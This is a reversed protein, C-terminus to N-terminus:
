NTELRMPMDAIVYAMVAISAAARAVEGPSIKDVTDAATHHIYFYRTNDAELSMSPIGAAEVSPGIDAGGGVGSVHDAGIDRLLEAAIELVRARAAASGSFGFGVPAFLGIDSELMLVHNKLEAAYKDRYARGGRVGNEENTFLVVRVTRRPRLGLTKLLRVAEWTAVCGGGDDLAGTGVDWSDIHAGVVVIEDPRERGILEGIVNHSLADPLQRGDMTLRLVTRVGREQFRQLRDADEAAIAAAPIAPVGAIYSTSGTHPTRYGIPGVSRVLFAVAGRRAARVPGATRYHVSENYTTFRANLLVIKGRAAGGDADLEEFSKVVLADAEIGEPLTAVSGGLGLMPLAQRSPKVIEASEQGRVWHPVMVPDLRVNELGDQRMQEATWRIAEELGSSGSLRHGFTDTLEALRRWAFDDAQAARLIRQAPERYAALWSNQPGQGLTFAAFVVTAGVTCLGASLAATPRPM